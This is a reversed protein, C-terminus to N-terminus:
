PSWATSAAQALANSTSTILTVFISEINCRATSVAGVGL